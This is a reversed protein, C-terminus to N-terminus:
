KIVRAVVCTILQSRTGCWEMYQKTQMCSYGFLPFSFSSSLIPCHTAFFRRRSRGAYSLPLITDNM